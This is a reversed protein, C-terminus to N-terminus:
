PGVEPSAAGAATDAALYRSLPARSVKLTRCIADIPTQKNPKGVVVRALHVVKGTDVVRHLYEPVTM